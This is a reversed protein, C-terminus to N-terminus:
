TGASNLQSPFHTQCREGDAGSAPFDGGQTERGKWTGAQPATGVHTCPRCLGGPPTGRAPKPFHWISDCRKASDRPSASRLSATQQTSFSSRDVSDRETHSIIVYSTDSPITQLHAPTTNVCSQFGPKTSPYCTETGARAPGSHPPETRSAMQGSPGLKWCDSYARPSWKSKCANSIWARAEPAGCVQFTVKPELNREALCIVSFLKSRYRGVM